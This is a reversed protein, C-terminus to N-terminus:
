LNEIRSRKQGKPVKTPDKEWVGIVRVKGNEAFKSFVYAILEDISPIGCIIQEHEDILKYGFVHGSITVVYHYGGIKMESTEMYQLQGILIEFSTESIYDELSLCYGENTDTWGPIGYISVM